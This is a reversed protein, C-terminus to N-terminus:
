LPDIQWAGLTCQNDGNDHCMWRIDKEGDGPQDDGIILPSKMLVEPPHTTENYDLYIVNVSPDHIFSSPGNAAGIPAVTADKDNKLQITAAAVSYVLGIIIVWFLFILSGKYFANKTAQNKFIM